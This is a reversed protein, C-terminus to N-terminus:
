TNKFDKRDVGHSVFFDEIAAVDRFKQKKVHIAEFLPEHIKDVVGLLEATFYAKGLLEWGKGLVAPLRLFEVDDPKNELWKSINPELYYCHPCSYWFLEVVEVKDAVSTPQPKALRLYEAGEMYDGAVAASASLSLFLAVWWNTLKKM